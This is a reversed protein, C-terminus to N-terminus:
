IERSWRTRYLLQFKWWMLLYTYAHNRTQPIGHTIHHLVAIQLRDERLKEQITTVDLRLGHSPKQVVHKSRSRQTIRCRAFPAATAPKMQIYTPMHHWEDSWALITRWYPAASVQFTQRHSNLHDLGQLLRGFGVFQWSNLARFRLTHMYTNAHPVM